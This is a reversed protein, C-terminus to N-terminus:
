LDESEFPHPCMDSVKYVSTEGTKSVLVIESDKDFFETIVQRCM